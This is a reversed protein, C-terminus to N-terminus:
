RETRGKEALIEKLNRPVHGLWYALLEPRRQAASVIADVEEPSFYDRKKERVNKAPINQYLWKRYAKLGEGYGRAIAQLDAWREFRATFGKSALRVLGLLQLRNRGKFYLVHALEHALIARVGEEPARRTFVAANVFVIYRMRRGTLFHPVAFRARFYDSQSEFLKVQFDAGRLEPYSAAKIENLLLSARDLIKKSDSNQDLSFFHPNEIARISTVTFARATPIDILCAQVFIFAILLSRLSTQRLTTTLHLAHHHKRRVRTRGLRGELSDTM